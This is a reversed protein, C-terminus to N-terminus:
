SRRWGHPLCTGPHGARRECRRQGEILQDCFARVRNTQDDETSVTVEAGDLESLFALSRTMTRALLLASDLDTETYPLHAVFRVSEM